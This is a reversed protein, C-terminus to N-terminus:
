VGATKSGKNSKINHIATVITVESSMAEVLGTFSIGAQSKKFLFDLTQKLETENSFGVSLHM